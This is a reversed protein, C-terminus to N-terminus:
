LGGFGCRVAIADDDRLAGRQSFEREVQDDGNDGELAKHSRIREM